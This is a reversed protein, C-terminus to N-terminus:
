TGLLLAVARQILVRMKTYITVVQNTSFVMVKSYYPYAQTGVNIVVYSMLNAINRINRFVQTIPKLLATRGTSKVVLAKQRLASVFAKVPARTAQLVYGTVLRVTHPATHYLHVLQGSVYRTATTTTAKLFFFREKAKIVIAKTTGKVISVREPTIVKYYKNAISRKSVVEFVKFKFADKLSTKTLYQMVAQQMVLLKSTFKFLHEMTKIPITKTTRKIMSVLEPSQLLKVRSVGISVTELVPTMYSFYGKVFSRVVGITEYTKFIAYQYSSKQLNIKELISIILHRRRVANLAVILGSFSQMSFNRSMLKYFTELNYVVPNLLKSLYKSFITVVSTPIFIHYPFRKTYTFVSNSLVTLNKNPRSEVTTIGVSIRSVLTKVMSKAPLTIVNLISSYYVRSFYRIASVKQPSFFGTIKIKISLLRFDLPIVFLPRISQSTRAARTFVPTVFTNLGRGSYSFRVAAMITLFKMSSVPSKKVNIFQANGIYLFLPTARIGLAQFFAMVSSIVPSLTKSNSHGFRITQNSSFTFVGGFPTGFRGSLVPTVSVTQSIPM